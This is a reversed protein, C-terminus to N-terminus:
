RPWMQGTRTFLLVTAVDAPQLGLLRAAARAYDAMQSAYGAAASRVDAETDVRNSKFDFVTARM